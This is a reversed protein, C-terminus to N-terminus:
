LFRIFNFINLIQCISEPWAYFNNSYCKAPGSIVLHTSLLIFFCFNVIIQSLMWKYIFGTSEDFGVVRIIIFIWNIVTVLNILNDFEYSNIFDEFKSEKSSKSALKSEDQEITSFVNFNNKEYTWYQYAHLLTNM